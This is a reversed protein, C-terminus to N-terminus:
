RLYAVGESRLGARLEGVREEVRAPVRGDADDHEGSAAVLREARAAILFLTPLAAVRWAGCARRVRARHVHFRQVAGDAVDGLGDDGHDVAEGDATTVDEVEQAVGRDRRVIREGALR